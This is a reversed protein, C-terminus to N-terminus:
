LGDGAKRLNRISAVFIFTVLGSGIVAETVAVDPASLLAFGAVATMSLASLFIISTLLKRSIVATLAFVVLFVSIGAELIDFWNM